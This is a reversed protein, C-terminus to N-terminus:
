NIEQIMFGLLVKRVKSRSIWERKINKFKTKFTEGSVSDFTFAEPEKRGDFIHISVPNDDQDRSVAMALGLPHFFKRNVEQLYGFDRFEKLKMRKIGDM